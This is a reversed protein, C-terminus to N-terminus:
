KQLLFFHCKQKNSIFTAVCSNGQSIELYIHIIVGVTGDGTNKENYRLGKRKTTEVSKLIRYENKYLSYMLWM